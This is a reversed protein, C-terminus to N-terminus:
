RVSAVEETGVRIRGPGEGAIAELTAEEHIEGLLIVFPLCYIGRTIM